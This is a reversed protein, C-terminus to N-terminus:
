FMCYRTFISFWQKGGHRYITWNSQKTSTKIEHCISWEKGFEKKWAETQETKFKLNECTKQACAHLIRSKIM